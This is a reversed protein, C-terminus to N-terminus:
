QRGTGQHSPCHQVCSRAPGHTARTSAQLFPIGALQVPPHMERSNGGPIPIVRPWVRTHFVWCYGGARRWAGFCARSSCTSFGPALPLPEADNEVLSKASTVGESGEAGTAAVPWARASRAPQFPQAPPGFLAGEGRQAWAGTCGPLCAHLRANCLSISCFTLVPSGPLALPRAPGPAPPGPRGGRLPRPGLVGPLRAPTGAMGARGRMGGAPRQAFPQLQDRVAWGAADGPRRTGVQQQPPPCAPHERPHLSPHLPISRAGPPIRAPISRAGPEPELSAAPLASWLDWCGRAPPARARCRRRRGPSPQVAAGPVGGARAGAPLIGWPKGAQM